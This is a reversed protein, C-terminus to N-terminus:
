DAAHLSMPGYVEHAGDRLVVQDVGREVLDRWNEGLWTEADAQTPFVEQSLRASAALESGDSKQYGWTWGVRVEGKAAVPGDKGAAAAALLTEAAYRHPPTASHRRKSSVGV